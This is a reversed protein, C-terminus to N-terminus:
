PPDLLPADRRSHWRMHSFLGIRSLCVKSCKPCPHEGGPPGRHGKEQPYYCSILHRWKTRDSADQEWNHQINSDKLVAHLVDKYRKRQGGHKRKGHVLEGFLINKPLRNDHMRSVHGSWRMVSRALSVAVSCCNARRLVEANSVKHFWRIEFIQRMSNM